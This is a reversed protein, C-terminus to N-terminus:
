TRPLPLDSCITGWRELPPSFVEQIVRHAPFPRCKRITPANREARIGHPRKGGSRTAHRILRNALSAAGKMSMASGAYVYEGSPLAITKGRKFGGFPLAADEALCIRLVYSGGRSDDGLFVLSSADPNM